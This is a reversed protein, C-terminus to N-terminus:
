QIEGAPKRRQQVKRTLAVSLPVGRSLRMSLAKGTMGHKKAMDKLPLTEGGFTLMTCRKVSMPIARAVAEDPPRGLRLRSLIADQSLGTADSWEAICMTKGNVTLLRNARTNRAQQQPTAWRCNEPSYPGNQDIRDISKGAPREGMDAYFNEFTQWRDCVMIGRGGYLHYKPNNPNECRQRMSLWQNHSKTHSMGHRVRAGRGCGCSTVRGITLNTSSVVKTRGCDCRCLIGSGIGRPIVTLRGFRTGVAIITKRTAM